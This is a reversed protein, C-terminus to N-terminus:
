QCGGDECFKPIEDKTYFLYVGINQGKILPQPINCGVQKPAWQPRFLDTSEVM